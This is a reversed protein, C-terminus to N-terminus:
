NYYVKNSIKKKRCYFTTERKNAIAGYDMHVDAVM